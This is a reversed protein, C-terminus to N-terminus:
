SMPVPRFGEPIQLGLPRFIKPFDGFRSSTVPGTGCRKLFEHLRSRGSALLVNLAACRAVTVPRFTRDAGSPPTEFPRRVPRFAVARPVPLSTRGRFRRNIAYASLSSVAEAGIARSSKAPPHIRIGTRAGTVSGSIQAETCFFPSVDSALNMEESNVVCRHSHPRCRHRGWKCKSRCTRSASNLLARAGPSAKTSQFARVRRKLARVFWFGAIRAM